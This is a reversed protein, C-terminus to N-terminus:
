ITYIKSFTRYTIQTNKNNWHKLYKANVQLIFIPGAKKSELYSFVTLSQKERVYINGFIKTYM